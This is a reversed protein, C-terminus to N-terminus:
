PYIVSQNNAPFAQVQQFTSIILLRGGRREGRRWRGGSAHTRRTPPVQWVDSIRTRM